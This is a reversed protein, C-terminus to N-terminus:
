CGLTKNVEHIFNKLVSQCSLYLNKFVKESLLRINIIVYSM